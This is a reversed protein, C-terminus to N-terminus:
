SPAAKGSPEETYAPSPADLHLDPFIIKEPAEHERLLPMERGAQHLIAHSVTGGPGVIFTIQAPVVTWFFRDEAEPYIEYRAQGTIRAYLHGDEVDVVMERTGELTYRGAYRPLLIAPLTVVSRPKIQEAFRRTTAAAAEAAAEASVPELFTIAGNQHIAMAITRNGAIRFSIQAPVVTFFFDNEGEAQLPLKQQGTVRCFLRGDEVTIEVSLGFGSAYHGVHRHLREPPVSVARRPRAQSEQAQRNAARLADAEAESIRELRSHRGDVDVTMAVVTGASDRDFGYRATLGPAAFSGDTQRQLMMLAGTVGQLTLCGGDLRVALFVNEIRAPDHRYFGICARIEEATHKEIASKLARWSRFGYAQAVARQAEALQAGPDRARLRALRSKAEKRLHELSPQPPLPLRQLSAKPSHRAATTM